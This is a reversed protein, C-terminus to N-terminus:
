KKLINLTTIDTETDYSIDGYNKLKCTLEPSELVFIVKGDEINDQVLQKL